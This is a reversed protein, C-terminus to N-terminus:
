RQCLMQGWAIVDSLKKALINDARNPVVLSTCMLFELESKLLNISM